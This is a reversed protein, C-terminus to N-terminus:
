STPPKQPAPFIAQKQVPGANRLDVPAELLFQGNGMRQYVVSPSLNVWRIPATTGDAYDAWEQVLMWQGEKVLLDGQVIHNGKADMVSYTAKYSGDPIPHTRPTM